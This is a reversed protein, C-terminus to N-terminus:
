IPQINGTLHLPQHGNVPKTGVVKFHLGESLSNSGSTQSFIEIQNPLYLPQKFASNVLYAHNFIKPNHKQLESICYSKTWMGHIIHQKFGFLMASWKSLHIPNFDGSVKAYRRGLNAELQWSTNIDYSFNDTSQQVISNVQRGHKTLFLNTSISKWVLESGNYFEVKISFLWGKPHLELQEFCSTVSLREGKKIPREQIIQNNVQVLGLLPFPFEPLLLLMMHMPFALSHLYCPHLRDSDLDWGVVQHFNRCRVENLAIGEFCFKKIPLSVLGIQQPNYSANKFAAKLLLFKTNPINTLNLAGTTSLSM